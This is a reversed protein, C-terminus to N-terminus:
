RGQVIVSARDFARGGLSAVITYDGAPIDKWVFSYLVRDGEITWDSRRSFEGSDAQVSIWRDSEGPHVRVSIQLDTPAFAIQPRVTLLIPKPDNFVAHALTALIAFTVFASAAVSKM